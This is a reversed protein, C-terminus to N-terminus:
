GPIASGNVPLLRTNGDQTPELTLTITSYRVGGRVRETTFRAKRDFAGASVATTFAGAARDWGSGSEVFVDFTGDPVRSATASAGARVYLVVVARDSRSLTVVADTRGAGNDVTFRGSGSGRKVLVAGNRPRAAPAASAAVPVVPDARTVATPAAVTAADATAPLAVMGAAVLAVAVSVVRRRSRRRAAHPAVPSDTAPFPGSGSSTMRTTLAVPDPFGGTRTGAPCRCIYNAYALKM